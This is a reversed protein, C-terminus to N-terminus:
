ENEDDETTPPKVIVGHALFSREKNLYERIDEENFRYFVDEGDGDFFILIDGSEIDDTSILPIEGFPLKTFKESEDLPDILDSTQPYRGNEIIYEETLWDYEDKLMWEPFKLTM